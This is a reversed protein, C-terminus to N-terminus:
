RALYLPHIEKGLASALPVNPVTGIPNRAVNYGVQLVETWDERTKSTM